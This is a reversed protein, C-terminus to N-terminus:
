EVPPLMSPVIRAVSRFMALTDAVVIMTGPWPGDAVAGIEYAIAVHQDRDAVTTAVSL